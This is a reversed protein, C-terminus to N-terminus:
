GNTETDPPPSDLVLVGNVGHICHNKAIFQRAQTISIGSDRSVMQAMKERLRNQGGGIESGSDKQLIRKVRNVKGKAYHHPSGFGKFSSFSM